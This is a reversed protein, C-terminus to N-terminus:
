PYLETLVAEVLELKRPKPLKPIGELTPEGNRIKARLSDVM